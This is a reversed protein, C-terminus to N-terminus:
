HQWHIRCVDCVARGFQQTYIQSEGLLDKRGTFGSESRTVLPESFIYPKERELEKIAFWTSLLQLPKESPGSFAGMFTKYRTARTFYAVGKLSPCALMCSNKPQELTVWVSLLYCLFFILASIELLFNGNKVFEYCNAEGLFSNSAMRKSQARCLVTFSSCPTALWCMGFKRICTVADLLLRLGQSTLADHTASMVTDFACGFYGGALMEYTLWGQGAFIECFDFLQGNCGHAQNGLGRFVLSLIMDELTKGEFSPYCMSLIKPWLWAARGGNIQADAALFHNILDRYRNVADM